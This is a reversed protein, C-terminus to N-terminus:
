NLKNNHKTDLYISSLRRLTIINSNNNTSSYHHYCLYLDITFVLLYQTICGIFYDKGEEMAWDDMDVGFYEFCLKTMMYFWQLCFGSNYKAFLFDGM